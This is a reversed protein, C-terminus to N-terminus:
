VHSPWDEPSDYEDEYVPEEEMIEAHLLDKEDYDDFAERLFLEHNAQEAPDGDPPMEVDVHYEMVMAIKVTAQKGVLRSVQSGSEDTM